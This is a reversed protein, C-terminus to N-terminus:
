NIKAEETLRSAEESQAPTEENAPIDIKDSPISYIKEKYAALQDHCLNSLIKRDSSSSKYASADIKEHIHVRVDIRKYKLINLLHPFFSMTEYFSIEDPDKIPEGDLLEYEINIPVIKTKAKIPADFYATYFPLVKTGDTCHGEPFILINVNDNMRKAMERNLHVIENKYRSDVFITECAEVVKNIYAMDKIESKAMFSGPLLSGLVVGDLYGVHNALVFNGHEKLLQKNGIVNLKIGSIVRLIRCLGNSLFNLVKYRTKPKTWGMLFKTVNAIVIFSLLNLAILTFKLKQM